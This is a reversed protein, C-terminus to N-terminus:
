QPSDLALYLNKTGTETRNQGVQVSNICPETALPAFIADLLHLSASLAKVLRGPPIVIIWIVSSMFSRMLWANSSFFVADPGGCRAITIGIETESAASMYEVVLM